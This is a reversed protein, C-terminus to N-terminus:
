PFSPGFDNWLISGTHQTWIWSWAFEVNFVEYWWDMEETSPSVFDDTFLDVSPSGRPEFRIDPLIRNAEDDEHIRLRM